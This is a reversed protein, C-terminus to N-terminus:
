VDNLNPLDWSTFIGLPREEPKGNQTIFVVLLRIHKPLYDEFIKKLKIAQDDRKLFLYTAAEDVTNPDDLFNEIDKVFLTNVITADGANKVMFKLLSFESLVKVVVGKENIVPCVSYSKKVMESLIDKLNSDMKCSYMNKVCVDHATKPKLLKREFEQIKKVWEDTPEAFFIAGTTTEHVIANRLINIIALESIQKDTFYNSGRVVEMFKYKGVVKKTKNRLEKDFINYSNLFAKANSLENNM